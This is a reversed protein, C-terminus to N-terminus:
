YAFKAHWGDPGAPLMDFFHWVACFDDRPGLGTDSVRLIRGGEKRFVSVGPQFGQEGRYGMDAAFSSGAHSVMRFNWGRSRAFETQAAPADPTAIVFAARNELHALVGNFGDAWMTCYPCGRGMNHIVFLDPKDGFLESLAVEGQPTAFRYDPVEEPEIAAQLGRMESRIAAIQQRYDNLQVVTDRYDM